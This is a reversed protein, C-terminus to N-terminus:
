RVADGVAIEGGETIAARLGGRGALGKLVDPRTLQALHKCPPALELGECEVAGIRFRRGVLGDLDVGRVVVNRRAAAPELGVDDVAEAAILTLDREGPWGSFTGAGEFYRDGELGRGAVATAREVSDPLETAVRAIHISEVVGAM